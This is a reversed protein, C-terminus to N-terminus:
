ASALAVNTVAIILMLSRHAGSSDRYLEGLGLAWALFLASGAVILGDVATRAQGSAHPPAGPVFALGATSAATSALLVIAGAVGPSDAGNALWIVLGAIWGLGALALVGWQLHKSGASM